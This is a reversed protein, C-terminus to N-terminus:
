DQDRTLAESLVFCFLKPYENMPVAVDGVLESQRHSQPGSWFVALPDPSHQSSGLPDLCLGVVLRM